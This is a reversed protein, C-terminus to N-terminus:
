LYYSSSATSSTFFSFLNIFHSIVSGSRSRDRQGASAAIVHDSIIDIRLQAFYLKTTVDSDHWHVCAGVCM